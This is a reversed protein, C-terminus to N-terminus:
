QEWDDLSPDYKPPLTPVGNPYSTLIFKAFLYELRDSPFKGVIEEYAESLSYVYYHEGTKIFEEVEEESDFFEAVADVFDDWKLPDEYVWTDREDILEYLKKVDKM